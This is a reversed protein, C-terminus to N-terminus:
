NATLNLTVTVSGGGSPITFVSPFAESWLVTTSTSDTVYYGYVSQGSTFTFTQAAYSATTTGNATAVTWSSGTLSVAAYGAGTDCETYTSVTDSKGPTVNTKYLHLKVNAPSAKNLALQLILSDGVSPVVLTM